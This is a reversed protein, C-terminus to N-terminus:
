PIQTRPKMEDIYIFGDFAKGWDRKVTLPNQQDITAALPKRFEHTAPLGRLDLFGFPAKSKHLIAELSGEEVPRFPIVPNGLWSWNGRNAIFGLSYLDNGLELSVLRGTSEVEGTVPEVYGGPRSPVEQVIHVNHAWVMVKKGKFHNDVLWMLNNANVKERLNYPHAFPRKKEQVEQHMQLMRHYQPTSLLVAKRFQWDKGWKEQFGKQNSELARLFYVATGYVAMQAENMEAANTASRAKQFAADVVARDEATFEKSDKFWDLFDPFMSNSANGSGQLDFGAMVLPRSTKRTQRAYEFIPLSEKGQSWHSFVGMRAVEGIPKTGGIAADMEACDYLGSEWILADFGMERHLFKALEVKVEFSTGDGHTLEGLMVVRSKGIAKRIAAEAEPGLQTSSRMPVLGQSVQVSLILAISLM